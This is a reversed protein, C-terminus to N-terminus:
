GSDRDRRDAEATVLTAGIILYDVVALPLILFFGAIVLAIIEWCAM